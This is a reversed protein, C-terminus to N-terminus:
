LYIPMTVPNVAATLEILGAGELFDTPLLLLLNM